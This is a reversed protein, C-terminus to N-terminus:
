QKDIKGFEARLAARVEDMFAPVLTSPDYPRGPVSLTEVPLYGRYGAKSIMKMIRPLDIRVNSEKGFASEKLQFNVAYPLVMEMDKYPDDSMFYGTDLIVGFWPSNVAKVVQITQEANKLMDGHNQVGVIVGRSAGYATCEKFCDIMWAAVEDWRNEYGEPVPGSFIRLVPAGLKSAVDIWDKVRQVDAARKAPDPNSFDNMTGTGSIDVGRIHAYRKVQYIYDDTPVDPWGVFFYGTADLADIKHMACFDILDFLTMENGGRGKIYNNLEKSFSYANLAPKVYAGPVDFHRKLEFKSEPLTAKGGGGNGGNKGGANQALTGTAILVVALTTGIIKIPKIQM